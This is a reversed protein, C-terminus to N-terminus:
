DERIIALLYLLKNNKIKDAKHAYINIADYLYKEPLRDTKVLFRFIHESNTEQYKALLKSFLVQFKESRDDLLVRSKSLYNEKSNTWTEGCFPCTSM